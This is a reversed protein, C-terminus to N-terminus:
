ASTCHASCHLTAQLKSNATPLCWWQHLLEEIMRILESVLFILPFIQGLLFLDRTHKEIRLKMREKTKRKAESASFPLIGYVFIPMILKWTEYAHRIFVECQIASLVAPASSVAAVSVAPFSHGWLCIRLGLNKGTFRHVCFFYWMSHKLVHM